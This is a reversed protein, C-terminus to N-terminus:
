SLNYRILSVLKNVCSFENKGEQIIYASRDAAVPNECSTSSHFFLDETKFIM